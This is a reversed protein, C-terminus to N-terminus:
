EAAPRAKPAPLVEDILAHVVEDPVVLDNAQAYFLLSLIRRPGVRAREILYEWDLDCRAVISLADFWYRPTEETHALVKMVLIDEPPAVRLMRGEFEQVTSRELMRGDLYIDGTSRILVDVIVGRKAAKHLWLANYPATVFGAAEFAGMIREVDTARVFIDIDLTFRARGLVASAIGGVFLYPLGEGELVAVAEDLVDLYVDKDIVHKEFTPGLKGNETLLPAPLDEHPPLESM